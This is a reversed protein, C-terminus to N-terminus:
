RGDNFRKQYKVFSEAAEITGESPDCGMLDLRVMALLHRASMAALWEDTGLDGNKSAAELNKTAHWLHKMALHRLGDNTHKM